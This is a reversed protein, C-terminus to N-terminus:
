AFDTSVDGPNPEWPTGRVSQLLRHDNRQEEPVRRVTQVVCTGTADMVNRETTKVRVGEFVGRSWRSELKHRTRKQYDVCEGFNPM